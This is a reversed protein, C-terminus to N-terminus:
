RDAALLSFRVHVEALLEILGGSVSPAASDASMARAKMAYMVPEPQPGAVIPEDSIVEVAGVEMGLAAAYATARDRADVAAEGLLERKAPNDRNVQWRLNRVAAGCRDIAEGLLVGVRDLRRVTVVVGATARYGVMTNQDHRYEWEEAVNVGETVWEDRGIELEGLLTELLRSREAITAMASAADKAVQTIGLSVDVFDPQVARSASGRVTAIAM